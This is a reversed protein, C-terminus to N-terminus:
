NAKPATTAPRAADRSAPAANTGPAPRGAPAAGTGGQGSGQPLAPRVTAPRGTAGAPSTSGTAPRAASPPVTTTGSPATATGSPASGSAKPVPVGTAPPVSRPTPVPTSPTTAPPPTAQPVQQPSPSPVSAPPGPASPVSPAPAPTSAGSAGGGSRSGGRILNGIGEILGTGKEIVTKGADGGVGITSKLAISGLVLYDPKPKPQGVTGGIKLFDPLKVLVANTPTEAPVLNVTAALERRLQVVTSFDIPSNTLISALTVLGKAEVVFNTSRVEAQEVTLRGSGAQARVELAEIPAKSLEDVWGGGGAQQGSAGRGGTLRGLLDTVAGTKGRLLDPISVIVNVVSRVLPSRTNAIQLNLNTAGFQFQGSLNRQLGEGTIGAGKISAQAGVTGAVRGKNPPDWTNNLPALPLRDARLDLSYAFGAQALNLMSEVKLPAGNVSMELPKIRLVDDDLTGKLSCGRIELERFLVKAITADLDLKRLPLRVPAPEKEPGPPAAAAAPTTPRNTGASTLSAFPNLDLGDSRIEIRSRGPNKPSLDLRGKMSIVNPASATSDAALAVERLDIVDGRVVGDANARISLPRPAAEGAAPELVLSSVKVEGKLAHGAAKSSTVSADVDLKGSRIRGPLFARLFPQLPGVSLGDSKIKWSGDGALRNLNGNAELSGGDDFGSKPAVTLRTLRLSEQSVTGGFQVSVHYDNFEFGGARGGFEALSLTGTVNTTGNAASLDANFQLRGSRPRIDPVPWLALTEPLGFDGAVQAGASGKSPRFQGVGSLSGLSKGLRSLSANFKEVTLDQLNEVLGETSLELGTQDIRNTGLSTALNRGHLDVNFRVVTGEKETRVKWESSLQGQPASPGLLARWRPLELEKVNLSFTSDRFGKGAQALALSMPRDLNGQMLPRGEQQGTVDLKQLVLLHTKLDMSVIYDLNIDLPPTVGNTSALSFKSATFRGNSGVRVGADLMEILGQGSVTTGGLEIGQAAGLVDLVRRDLGSLEYKLRAESKTADMPGSLKLAGLDQNGQRFRLGALNLTSDTLDLDLVAGLGRFKAFAGGSDSISASVSGKGSAPKLEKSLSLDLAGTVPAEIVNSGGGGGQVRRLRAELTVHGASANAMRDVSVNLGSVETVEEGDRSRVTQRVLGNRISLNRIDVMPAAGGAQVPAARGGDAARRAKEMDALNSGGDARQVVTIEPADITIESSRFGGGLISALSYRVRVERAKLLPDSGAPTVRLGRLVLSSFPSFSVSDAEVAAGAAAGVRPLVAWRVFWGNGAIVFLVVVLVLLLLPLRIWWPWRTTVEEETEIAASM